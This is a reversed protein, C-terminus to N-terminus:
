INHILKSIQDFEMLTPTIEGGNQEAEKITQLLNLRKEKLYELRLQKLLDHFEQEIKEEELLSTRFSSQLNISNLM